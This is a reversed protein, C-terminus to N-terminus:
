TTAWAKLSEHRYSELKTSSGKVSMMLCYSKYKLKNYTDTAVRSRNRPVFEPGSAACMCYSSCTMTWTYSEGCAEATLIELVFEYWWPQPLTYCIVCFILIYVWSVYNRLSFHLSLMGWLLKFNLILLLSNLKVDWLLGVFALVIELIVFSSVM